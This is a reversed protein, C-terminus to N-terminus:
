GDKKLFPLLITVTTGKGPASVFKLEGKHAKIINYCISVGLGTGRKKTSFFPEFIRDLVEKSMGTGTDKIDIRLFNNQSSTSIEIKGGEPMADRANILLNMLVEEIQKDDAWVQPLNPTYNRVISINVLQFQHELIAVVDEIVREINLGKFEGKGPRSYRLIRQIIDKARQCEILIIELTKKVEPDSIEEMLALQARGSIIMLPNNVEHAIDAVLKGLQFLRQTEEMEKRQTVDRAVELIGTPVGDQNRIFNAKVELLVSHGSKHIYKIEFTRSRLKDTGKEEERTLEEELIKKMKKYEGPPLIEELSKGILEEPKYGLIHELSASIYVVRLDMDIGWIIDNVNEAIIRYKEESAKLSEEMKKRLTVDRSYGAVGIKGESLPVLFRMTEFIIEGLHEERIIPKKLSIVERDSTQWQVALEQPIVESDVKGIVEKEEKGFFQLFTRNAWLYRGEYDKLYVIDPLFNLFERFM